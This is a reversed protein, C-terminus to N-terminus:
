QFTSKFRPKSYDDILVYIRSMSNINQYDSKTDLSLAKPDNLLNLFRRNFLVISEQDNLLKLCRRNFSIISKVINNPCSHYQLPIRSLILSFSSDM